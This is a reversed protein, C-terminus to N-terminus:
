RFGPRVARGHTDNIEGTVVGAADITLVGHFASGASRTATARFDGNNPQLVIRYTFSPDSYMLFPGGPSAGSIESSKFVGYAILDDTDTTYYRENLFFFREAAWLTRLNAAAMDVRAQEVSSRYSPIAMSAFIGILLAVIMLEVLTSGSRSPRPGRSSSATM